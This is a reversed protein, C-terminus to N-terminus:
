VSSPAEALLNEIIFLFVFSDSENLVDGFDLKGSRWRQLEPTADSLNKAVERQVDYYSCCGLSNSILPLRNLASFLSRRMVVDLEGFYYISCQQFYNIIAYVGFFCM